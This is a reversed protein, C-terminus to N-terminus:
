KKLPLDLYNVLDIDINKGVNEEELKVNEPRVNWDKDMQIQNEYITHFSSEIENNKIHIAQIGLM